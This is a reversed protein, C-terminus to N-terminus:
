EIPRYQGSTSATVLRAVAAPAVKSSGGVVKTDPSLNAEMRLGKPMRYAAAM